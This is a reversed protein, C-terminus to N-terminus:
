TSHACSRSTPPLGTPTTPTTRSSSVSCAARRARTCRRACAATPSFRTASSTSRASRPSTAKTSRSCSTSATRTSSSSRPSSARRSDAKAATCSWSGTSTPAPRPARSSRGRRKRSRRRSRTTRLRKNGELIIRNIVPNERVSIVLAGTDAGTIQVDAFLQTAYLDKLAQDLTGATYVQGPRSIPMLGSRRRNSGSTAACPSRVSRARRQKCSRRRPRPRHRNRPPRHPAPAEQALAPAASGGLVTGILLLAGTRRSFTTTTSIM